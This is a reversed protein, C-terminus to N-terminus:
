FKNLVVNRLTSIFSNISTKNHVDKIVRHIRDALATLRGEHVKGGGTEEGAPIDPGGATVYPL